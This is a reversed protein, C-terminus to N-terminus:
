KTVQGACGNAGCANAECSGGGIADMDDASFETSVMAPLFFTANYSPDAEIIRIKCEPDLEIGTLEQIAANPDALLKSRYAADTTAKGAVENYVEQLKEQTWEM